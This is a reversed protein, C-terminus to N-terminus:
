ASSRMYSRLRRAASAAYTSGPRGLKSEAAPRPVLPRRRDRCKPISSLSGGIVCFDILLAPHGYSSDVVDIKCDRVDLSGEREIKAQEPGEAELDFSSELRISPCLVDEVQAEPLVM